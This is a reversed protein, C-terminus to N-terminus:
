LEVCFIALSMRGARKSVSQFERLSPRSLWDVMHKKEM